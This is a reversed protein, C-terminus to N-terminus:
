HQQRECTEIITYYSPCHVFRIQKVAWIGECVGGGPVSESLAVDGHNYCIHMLGDTVVM